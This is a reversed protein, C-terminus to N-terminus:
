YAVSQYSKATGGISSLFSSGLTTSADKALKIVVKSSGGYNLDKYFILNKNGNSDNKVTCKQNGNSINELVKGFNTGNQVVFKGALAGAGETYYQLMTLNGDFNTLNKLRLFQKVNYSTPSLLFYINKAFNRFYGQDLITGLGSVGSVDTGFTGLDDFTDPFSTTATAEVSETVIVDQEIEPNIRRYSAESSYFDVEKIEPNYFVVHSNKMMAEVKKTDNTIVGDIKFNKYENLMSGDSFLDTKSINESAQPIETTACSWQLVMVLAVAFYKLKINKM